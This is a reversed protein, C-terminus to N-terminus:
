DYIIGLGFFEVKGGMEELEKVYEKLDIYEESKELVIDLKDNVKRDYDFERSLGLKDVFIFLFVEKEVIFEDKVRGVVVFKVEILLFDIVLDRRVKDDIGEYFLGSEGLM